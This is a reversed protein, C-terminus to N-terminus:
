RMFLLRSSVIEGGAPNLTTKVKIFSTMTLLRRTPTNSPKINIVNM